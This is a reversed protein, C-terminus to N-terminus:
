RIHLLLIVTTALETHLLSGSMLPISLSYFQYWSWTVRIYWSYGNWNRETKLISQLDSSPHPGCFTLSFRCKERWHSPQKSKCPCFSVTRKKTMECLTWMQQIINGDFLQCLKWNSSHLWVRLIFVLCITPWTLHFVIPKYHGTILVGMSCFHLERRAEM